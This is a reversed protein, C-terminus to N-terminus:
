RRFVGGMDYPNIADRGSAGRKDPRPASHPPTPRSTGPQAPLPEGHAALAILAVTAVGAM